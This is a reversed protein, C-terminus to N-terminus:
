PMSVIHDNCKKNHLFNLLLLSRSVTQSSTFEQPCSSETLKVRTFNQSNNCASVTHVLGGWGLTRGPYCPSAGTHWTGTGPAPIGRGQGQHLSAVGRDRTCPYWAGIGPTPYWVGTGPEPIGRGQGLHLSVVGGDRTCPYWVETGQTAGTGPILICVRRTRYESLNRDRTYLHV